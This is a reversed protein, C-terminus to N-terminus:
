QGLRENYGYRENGECKGESQGLVGMKTSLPM